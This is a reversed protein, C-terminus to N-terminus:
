WDAFSRVLEEDEPYDLPLRQLEDITKWAIEEILEDPDHYFIQGGMIKCFFYYTTVDFNKM